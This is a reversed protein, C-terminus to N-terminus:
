YSYVGFDIDQPITLVTLKDLQTYAAALAFFGDTKRSKPEIKQFIMNGKKDYEIKTNNTYWNMTKNNEGWVIRRNAFDSTIIPAIQMLDSPRVLKLNNNCKKDCDFGIKKLPDKLISYRYSDMAGAVIKYKKQQESLWQVPIEPSIEIDNVITLLGRDAAEQVPFKIRSLDNSNSCVWSHEKFYLINEIKFLLGVSLFDTTKTYDLGFVCQNNDLQIYPRNAAKIDEWKAVPTAGDATLINMRKIIFATNGFNDKKWDNYEKAIERQLNPMYQLSPNAKYWNDPNDVDKKSDLRCIFPLLGNDATVGNLIDLADDLMNDLPGDRVNGMTTLYTIRPMPKKGFGTKFVTMLDYNEYAHIEDFDVKGPRGGDKTKSNSTRFRLTSHTKLNEIETKTWRFHKQMKTKHSELINYIDTFTTKAQEESNACIDIDYFKIGNAPTLLCFDEFSLYGNKGTGRGVLILLDPFRLVGPSSYTCNHLAFCFKEWPFLKFDFYKQYSFYKELQIEDVYINENEFVKEIFEALLLQEKCVKYKGSRVIAIYDDIVKCNTM